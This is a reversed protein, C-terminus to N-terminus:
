MPNEDLNQSPFSESIASIFRRGKESRSHMDLSRKGGSESFSFELDAPPLEGQGRGPWEVLLLSGEDFLDRISLYELEQPNEIRYLDLHLLKVAGPDYTELLGYTPSKVKGRYGLASALARVFTTKGAGLPGELYIVCPPRLIPAVVGALEHVQALESSDFTLRSDAM